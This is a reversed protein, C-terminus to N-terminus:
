SAVEPENIGFVSPAARKGVKELAQGIVLVQEAPIRNNKGWMWVTSYKAGTIEAAANFGGLADIVAKPSTLFDTM